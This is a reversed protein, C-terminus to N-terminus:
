CVRGWARQEARLVARGVRRLAAIVLERELKRREARNKAKRRATTKAQRVRRYLDKSGQGMTEKVGKPEIGTFGYRLQVSGALRLCRRCGAPSSYVPWSSCGIRNSDGNTLGKEIQRRPGHGEHGRRRYLDNSMARGGSM